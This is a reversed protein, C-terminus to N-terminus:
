EEIARGYLQDRGAALRIKRIYARSVNERKAVDLDHVGEYARLVRASWQETSEPERSPPRFRHRDREFEAAVVWEELRELQRDLIGEVRPPQSSGAASRGASDHPKAAPAESILELDTVVTVTRAVLARARENVHQAM